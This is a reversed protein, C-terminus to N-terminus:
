PKMQFTNFYIDFYYIYLILYVSYNTIKKEKDTNKVLGSM